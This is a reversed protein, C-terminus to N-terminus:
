QKLFQSVKQPHCGITGESGEGPCWRKLTRYGSLMVVVSILGGACSDKLSVNLGYAAMVTVLYIVSFVFCM